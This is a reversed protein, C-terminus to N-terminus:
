EYCSHLKSLTAKWMEIRWTLREKQCKSQVAAQWGTSMEVGVGQRRALGEDM